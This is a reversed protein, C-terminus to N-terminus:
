DVVLIVKFMAQCFRSERRPAVADKSSESRALQKERTETCREFQPASLKPSRLVWPEHKAVTWSLCHCSQPVAGFNVYKYAV